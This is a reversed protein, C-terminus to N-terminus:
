GDISDDLEGDLRELTEAYRRDEALNQLEWPDSALDYLEREGDHWRV